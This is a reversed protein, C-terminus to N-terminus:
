LNGVLHGHGSLVSTTGSFYLDAMALAWPPYWGPLEDRRPRREPLAAELSTAAPMAVPDAGARASPHPAPGSAPDASM